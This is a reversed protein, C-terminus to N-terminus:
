YGSLAVFLGLERHDSAAEALVGMLTAERRLKAGGDNRLVEAGSRSVRTGSSVIQLANPSIKPFAAELGADDGVQTLGRLDICAFRKARPGAAVAPLLLGSISRRVGAGTIAVNGQLRLAFIGKTSPSNVIAEVVQHLQDDTLSMYSFDAVAAEGSIAQGHGM